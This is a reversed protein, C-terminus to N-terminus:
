RAAGEMAFSDATLTHAMERSRIWAVAMSHLSPATVDALLRDLARQSWQAAPKTASRPREGLEAMLEANSPIIQMEQTDALSRDMPDRPMTYRLGHEPCWDCVTTERMSCWCVGNRMLEQIRGYDAVTEVTVGSEEDFAGYACLESCWPQRCDVVGHIKVDAVIMARKGCLFCTPREDIHMAEYMRERDEAEDEYRDSTDFYRM